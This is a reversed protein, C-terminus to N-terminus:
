SIVVCAASGFSVVDEGHLVGAATLDFGERGTAVHSRAARGKAEWLLAMAAFVSLHPQLSNAM